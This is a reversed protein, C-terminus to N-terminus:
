KRLGTAKQRVHWRITAGSNTVQDYNESFKLRMENLEGQRSRGGRRWWGDVFRVIPPSCSVPDSVNNEVTSVTTNNRDARWPTWESGPYYLMCTYVNARTVRCFSDTNHTFPICCFVSWKDHQSNDRTYRLLLLMYVYAHNRVANIFVYM